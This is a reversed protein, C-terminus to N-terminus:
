RPFHVIITGDKVQAPGNNTVNFLQVLTLDKDSIKETDDIEVIHGTLQVAFATFSSKIQTPFKLTIIDSSTSITNTNNFHITFVENKATGDPTIKFKSLIKHVRNELPNGISCSWILEDDETIKKCDGSPSGNVTTGSHTATKPTRIFM